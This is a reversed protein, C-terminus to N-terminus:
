KKDTFIIDILEDASLFKKSKAIKHVLSVIASNYPTPIGLKEGLNIIEGNLYDIETTRGRKISQLTSGPIPISGLVKSQMAFLPLSFILPLNIMFKIISIPAGPLSCPKAGSKEIVRLGERTLLIQLKVLKRNKSVEQMPIGTVAPIANVQNLILKTWHAGHINSVKAVPLAKNLIAAVREVQESEQGFAQGIVLSGKKNYNTFTVKGPELFTGGFVVVCSIINEKGLIDATIKDSEVGNQMTIITSKSVYPKIEQAATKVDQTKVSLIVIDPEFDLSEKATIDIKMEGMIGDIILGHRNIVDVHTKRGILTVDERAKALLGGVISGIAGAGVVVIKSKQGDPMQKNKTMNDM